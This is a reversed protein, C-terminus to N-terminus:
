PNYTVDNITVSPINILNSPANLSEGEVAYNTVGCTSLFSQYEPIHNYKPENLKDNKTGYYYIKGEGEITLLQSVASAPFSDLKICLNSSSDLRFKKDVNFLPRTDDELDAELEEELGLLVVTTNMIGKGNFKSADLEQLVMTNHGESHKGINNANDADLKGSVYLKFNKLNNINGLDMSGNVYLNFNFLDKINGKSNGKGNGTVSIDAWDDIFINFDSIQLIKGEIDTKLSALSYSSNMKCSYPKENTDKFTQLYSQCHTTVDTPFITVSENIIGNNLLITTNEVVDLLNKPDVFKIVAEMEYKKLSEIKEYFGIVNYTLLFMNGERNITPVQSMKYGLYNNPNSIININEKDTNDDFHTGYVKTVLAPVFISNFNAIENEYDELSKKLIISNCNEKDVQDCKEKELKFTDGLDRIESYKFEIQNNIDTGIKKVGMEAAVVAQNNMDVAREQTVHNLSRSMFVATLSLFIIITFLVILLAYGRQNIIQKM